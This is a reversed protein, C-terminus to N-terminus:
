KEMTIQVFLGADLVNVAAPPSSLNTFQLVVSSTTHDSIYWRVGPDASNSIAVRAGLFRKFDDQLNFTYQGVGTRVLAPDAVVGPFNVSNADGTGDTTIVGEFVVDNFRARTVGPAYKTNGM